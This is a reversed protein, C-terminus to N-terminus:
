SRTINHYINKKIEYTNRSHKKEQEQEQEKEQRTKEKRKKEKNIILLQGSMRWGNNTDMADV